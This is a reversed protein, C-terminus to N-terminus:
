RPERDHRDQGMKDVLIRPRTGETIAFIEEHKLVTDRENDKNNGSTFAAHYAGQVVNTTPIHRQYKM